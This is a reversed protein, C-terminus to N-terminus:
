GYMVGSSSDASKTKVGEKANKSYAFAISDMENIGDTIEMTDGWVIKGVTVYQKKLIGNDDKMVYYKKGEKRVYAKSLWISSTTTNQSGITIELYDNNNLSSADAVYAVFGYYSVNPNGSGNYYGSNSPFTDISDINAEITQGSQWSYCSVPDGVHVQDLMLESITGSIYYGSGGAIELIPSGDTPPVTVDLLTRVVGSRKARVVGDSLLAQDEKLTLQAKRLNLDLTKLEQKKDRIAKALELETYGSYDIEPEESPEPIEIEEYRQEEKTHNAVNYMDGENIVKSAFKDARVLWSSDVEGDEDYTEFLFYSDLDCNDLFLKGYVYGVEDDSENPNALLKFTYPNQKSGVLYIKESPITLNELSGPTISVINDQNYTDISGDNYSKQIWYFYQVNDDGNEVPKENAKWLDPNEEPSPIHLNEPSEDGDFFVTAYWITYSTVAKEAQQLSVIYPYYGNEDKDPIDPVPLPSPDPLPTPIPTPTPIPDPTTNLLKKLEHEALMIDNKAKDINLQDTEVTSQLTTLDYSILPDGANVSQGQQVYVQTITKTDDYYISQTDSNSVFGTSSNPNEWYGTNLNAVSNVEITNTSDIYIKAGVIGGVIVAIGSTIIIGKKVKPNM